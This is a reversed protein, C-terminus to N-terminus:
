AGGSEARLFTEESPCLYRGAWAAILAADIIGDHPKKSKDSKTPIRRSFTTAYRDLAYKKTEGKPVKGLMAAQWTRPAVVTYSYGSVTLAGTIQGFVKWTSCLALVGPSFKGPQEIAITLQHPAGIFQLRTVLRAADVDGDRVPLAFEQIVHGGQVAVVAGTLGNDIGIAIRRDQPLGTEM